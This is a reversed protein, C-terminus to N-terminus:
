RARATVVWARGPLRLADGELRSALESAVANRVKAAVEATQEAFVRAAPGVRLAQDVAAELGSTSLEVPAEFPTLEVEVFGAQTLIAHLYDRDAFAFPGPARPDPSEAPAPVIRRAASLPVMCWPNDALAQWCVFALRAGPALAERLNRFAAVPEVFFMVGFRSFLADFPQTTRYTAADALVLEVSVGLKAGRAPLREGARRLLPQSVDVAVLAGGPAIREIIGLTCTGAGCGVDLVRAGPALPLSGLAAEGFAALAHDLQEQYTVWREGIPGNWYDIQAQNNTM